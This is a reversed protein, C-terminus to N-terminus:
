PFDYFRYEFQRLAIGRQKCFEVLKGIKDRGIKETSIIIELIQHKTLIEDLDGASGLVPCGYALRGIKDPDDDIFGIPAFAYSHNRRIEQIVTSARQGAGYILVRKEKTSAARNYVGYVVRYSIRFGILITLTFYFDLIFFISGFARMGFVLSLGITVGLSSLVIVKLVGLLDDLKAQIWSGLYLRSFYFAGLKFLLVFGLTSLFLSKDPAGYSQQCLLYSLSYALACSGLDFFALFASTNIVPFHFL